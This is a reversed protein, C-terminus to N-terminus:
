KLEEKKLPCWRPSTKITLENTGRKTYCIFGPMKGVRNNHCYEIIYEQNQHQCYVPARGLASSRYGIEAYKCDACNM